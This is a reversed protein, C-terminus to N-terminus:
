NLPEPPDQPLSANGPLPAKGLLLYFGGALIGLGFGIAHALYSVEPSYTQPILMIFIFGLSRLLKQRFPKISHVLFLVLWMSIMGYVMGSAGILVTHPPMWLVTLANTAAGLALPLFPFALRGFFDKLIWGFVLLLWGNSLFHGMDGHVWLATLTLWWEGHEYLASQSVGGQFAEPRVWRQYSMFFATILFMLAPFLNNPSPFRELPGKKPEPAPLFDEPDPEPGFYEDADHNM